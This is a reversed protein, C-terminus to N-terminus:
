QAPSKRYVHPWGPQRNRNALLCRVAGHSVTVHFPLRTPCLQKRPLLSPTHLSGGPWSTERCHIEQRGDPLIFEGELISLPPFPFLVAAGCSQTCIDVTDGKGTRHRFHSSSHSGRCVHGHHIGPAWSHEPTLSNLFLIKASTVPHPWGPNGLHWM